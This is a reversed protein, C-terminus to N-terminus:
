VVGDAVLFLYSEKEEEEGSIDNLVATLSEVILVVATASVELTISWVIVLMFVSFSVFVAATDGVVSLKVSM